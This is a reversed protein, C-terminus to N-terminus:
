KQSAAATRAKEVDKSLDKDCEPWFAGYNIFLGSITKLEQVQQEYEAKVYDLLQGCFPQWNRKNKIHIHKDTEPMRRVGQPAGFICRLAARLVDKQDDKNVIPELVDGSVSKRFQNDTLISEILEAFGVFRDM